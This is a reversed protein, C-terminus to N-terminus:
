VATPLAALASERTVRVYRYERLRGETDRYYCRAVWMGDARQTIHPKGFEGPGLRPRGDKKRETAPIVPSVPAGNNHVINFRPHESKIARIEAAAAEARSAFREFMSHTALEWWQASKAHQRMRVAPNEAIGVYLPESGAFYRYLTTTVGRGEEIDV